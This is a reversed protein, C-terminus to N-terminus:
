LAKTPFPQLSSDIGALQFHKCEPSDTEAQPRSANTWYADSYEGYEATGRRGLGHEAM